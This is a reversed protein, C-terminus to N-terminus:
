NNERNQFGIKSIQGCGIAAAPLCIYIGISIKLKVPYFRNIKKKKKTLINVSYKILDIIFAKFDTKIQLNEGPLPFASRPVPGSCPFIYVM